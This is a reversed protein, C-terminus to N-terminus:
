RWVIGRMGCSLYMRVYVCVYMSLFFGFYNEMQYKNLNCIQKWSILFVVVFFDSGYLIKGEWCLLASFASFLKLNLIDYMVCVKFCLKWTVQVIV